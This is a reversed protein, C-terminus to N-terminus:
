QCKIVEFLRGGMQQAVKVVAIQQTLNNSILRDQRRWEKESMLSDKDMRVLNAQQLAKKSDKVYNLGGGALLLGSSQEYPSSISPIQSIKLIWRWNEEQNDKSKHHKFSSSESEISNNEDEM